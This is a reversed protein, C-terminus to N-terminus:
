YSRETLQPRFRINPFEEIKDPSEEYYKAKKTFSTVPCLDLYYSNIGQWEAAAAFYESDRGRRIKRAKELNLRGAELRHCGSFHYIELWAERQDHAIIVAQDIAKIMPDLALILGLPAMLHSLM